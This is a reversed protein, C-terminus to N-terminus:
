GTVTKNFSAEYEDNFNKDALYTRAKKIYTFETNSCYNSIIDIDAAKIKEYPKLRNWHKRAPEKDTRPKGTGVHYNQWFEEFDVNEKVNWKETVEIERKLIRIYNKAELFYLINRDLEDKILEDKPVDEISQLLLYESYSLDKPKNKIEM